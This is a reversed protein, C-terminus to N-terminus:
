HSSNLRTSKRDGPISMILGAHELMRLAERITPRSRHYVDILARESPLRDNPRLEGKLIRERIEEFISESAKKNLVAEANSM